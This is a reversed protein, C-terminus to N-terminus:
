GLSDWEGPTQQQHRELGRLLTSAAASSSSNKSGSQKDIANSDGRIVNNAYVNVCYSRWIKLWQGLNKSSGDDKVSAKFQDFLALLKVDDWGLKAQQAMIKFQEDFVLAERTYIDEKVSLDSTHREEELNVGKPFDFVRASHPNQRPAGTACRQREEQSGLSDSSALPFNFVMRVPGNTRARHLPELWRRGILKNLLRKIQDRSFRVERAQSGAVPVVELHEAIGQYSIRRTVGVVGTKFDMHWRLYLYLSREVHSIDPEAFLAKHESLNVFCGLCSNVARLIGFV